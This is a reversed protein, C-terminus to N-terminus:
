ESGLLASAEAEGIGLPSFHPSQITVWRREQNRRRLAPPPRARVTVEVWTCDTPTSRNSPGRHHLLAEARQAQGEEPDIGVYRASGVPPRPVGSKAPRVASRRRLRTAPASFLTRPKQASGWAADCRVSEQFWDRREEFDDRKISRDTHWGDASWHYDEDLSDVDGTAVATWPKTRDGHISGETTWRRDALRGLELLWDRDYIDESLRRTTLCADRRQLPKRRSGRAM